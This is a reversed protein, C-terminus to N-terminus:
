SAKRKGGQGGSKKKEHPEWRGNRYYAQWGTAKGDKESAVYQEKTKRSYRVTTPNGEPDREPADLIYAYKPDLEAAHPKIESVMPPRTERNKPFQSAALFLGSAGDRLVYTDDVKQCQLEPMPIPDMKPPAPEGNRLLKRTNKCESNTCDFYKGFRGSKLQMESGCKDCELTPGEYGKIRFSGYELEQGDCDPSNGCVHLKRTEDILYSDMATGCKPCRHKERLLRSEGEGDDDEDASVAEDGPILNITKKCREKPPLSYGSCGLFVGTSAVRIQMPRGCDPCEIETDTPANTRMGGDEFEAQELQKSFREYFENLVQKWDERGEAVEDLEEEMRATFDYDLLNSFSENLRDTVIDGLKEAYFRRNELRVYGREQITSIISAYTSPRGIGRKELEKVLSAETYRPTPKTFHQSPTLESLILRDGEAIDPLVVDQDKKGSSPAVKQFGDFRIIRGRTKLQYDGAVVTVSTSLFEADTMQCAVFQRWILDYLREADKELGSIDQARRKVDSPRIAEHAEQAGERSTYYRPKEPLYDDGFSAQIYGRASQIADQSLNTSDTRMYTIYGAEYLRQALTMTKKVSFGLRNSAAQQLTSTIFPASPRSKTPKDERKAVRFAQEDDALARLREVHENSQQENTPRYPKDGYKAVEFPIGVNKQEPPTLLTDLEWYEEPVFARIEREREVILRVAVSQVRGASLGRAIKSWLLPSVMYGVVRDLFRRAQQAEVRHTDVDTPESFAEQIARKTIENFVVRRYKDDNGGIAEKLHWAIAEGERDLDTALYVADANNALRQLESVVKEKGPLIEYHAEWDNEPDVGMRRILQDHAKQQKYRAKTEPDMKRTEAAQRAREKPDTKRNGSGSVPLDRIHGVSSKVIYDDGLYKNITKAKAPSEVIVLSKGM